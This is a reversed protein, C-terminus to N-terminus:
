AFAYDNEEDAHKYTQCRTAIFGMSSALLQDAFCGILLTRWPCTLRIPWDSADMVLCHIPRVLWTANVLFLLRAARGILNLFTCWSFRKLFFHYDNMCFHLERCDMWFSITTMQVSIYNVVISEFLFPLLEYLFTFSSLGNLFLHYDNKCFYLHRFDKWFSITNM